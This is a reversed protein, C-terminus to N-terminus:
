VHTTTAPKYPLSEQMIIPNLSKSKDEPTLNKSTDPLNPQSATLFDIDDLNRIPKLDSKPLTNPTEIFTNNRSFPFRVSDHPAIKSEDSGYRDAVALKPNIKTLYKKYQQSVSNFLNRKKSNVAEIQAADELDVDQKKDEFDIDPKGPLPENTYYVGDYSNANSTLPEPNKRNMLQGVETVNRVGSGPYNKKYIYCFAFLFLLILPALM